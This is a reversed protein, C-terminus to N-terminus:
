TATAGGCKKNTQGDNVCQSPLQGRHGLVAPGGFRDFQDNRAPDATPSIKNRSNKGLRQGTKELLRKHNFGLWTGIAHNSAPLDRLRRSVAIRQQEAICRRLHDVLTQVGIRTVVAGLIEGGDGLNTRTAIEQHHRGVERRFINLLEKGLHAPPGRLRPGITGPADARRAM